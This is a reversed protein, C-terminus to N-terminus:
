YGGPTGRPRPAACDTRGRRAGPELYRAFHGYDGSIVRRWDDPIKFPKCIHIERRWETFFQGIFSYSLAAALSLKSGCIEVIERWRLAVLATQACLMFFIFTMWRLDLEGLRQGIGDLNVRRLSLYLLLASIGAKVLFSMMQRMSSHVGFLGIIKSVLDSRQM